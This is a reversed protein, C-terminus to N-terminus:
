SNSPVIKGSLDYYYIVAENPADRFYVKVYYRRSEGRWDYFGEIASIQEDHIGNAAVYDKTDNKIEEIAWPAGGFVLLCLAIILLISLVTFLKRM